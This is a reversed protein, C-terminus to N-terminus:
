KKMSRINKVKELLIMVFVASAAVEISSIIRECRVIWCILVIGDIGCLLARLCNRYIKKEQDTLVKNENDVPAVLFIGIQSIAFVAFRIVSYDISWKIVFMALLNIILSIVYCQGQTRAHYGGAYTRIPIFTILFLISEWVMGMLIGICITSLVNIFAAFLLHVGYLYVERDASSIIEMNVLRNVLKDSFKIKM